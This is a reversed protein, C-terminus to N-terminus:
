TNDAHCWFFQLDDGRQPTLPKSTAIRKKGRLLFKQATLTSWSRGETSGLDWHSLLQALAWQAVPSVGDCPGGMRSTRPLGAWEAPAFGGTHQTPKNKSCVCWPSRASKKPWFQFFFFIPFFFWWGMLASRKTIVASFHSHRCLNPSVSVRIMISCSYKQHIKLLELTGTLM